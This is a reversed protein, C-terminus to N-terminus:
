RMMREVEKMMNSLNGLRFMNGTDDRYIQSSQVTFFEETMEVNQNVEISGRTFFTCLSYYDGSDGNMFVRANLIPSRRIVEYVSALLLSEIEAMEEGGDQEKELALGFDINYLGFKRDFSKSQGMSVTPVIEQLTAMCEKVIEGDDFTVGYPPSLSGNQDALSYEGARFTQEVYYQAMFDDREQIPYGPRNIVACLLDLVWRNEENWTSGGIGTYNKELVIHGDRIERETFTGCLARNRQLYISMDGGGLLEQAKTMKQLTDKRGAELSLDLALAGSDLTVIQAKYLGGELPLLYINAALNLPSVDRLISLVEEGIRDPRTGVAITGKQGKVEGLCFPMGLADLRYCLITVIETRMEEDMETDHQPLTFVAVEGDGAALEQRTCLNAIEAASDPDPGITDWDVASRVTMEYSGALPEKKLGEAIHSLEQETLGQNVIYFTNPDEGSPLLLMNEIPIYNGWDRYRETYSIGEIDQILGIGADWAALEGEHASLFSDSLVIRIAEVGEQWSSPRFEAPYSATVEATEVDAPELPIYQRKTEDLCGQRISYISFRGKGAAFVRMLYSLDMEERVAPDLEIEIRGSENGSTVAEVKFQDEGALAGLRDGIIAADNQLVEGTVDEAAKLSVHDYAEPATGAARKEGAGACGALLLMLVPLICNKRIQKAFSRM